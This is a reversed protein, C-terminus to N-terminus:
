RRMLRDTLDYPVYHSLERGLQDSLNAPTTRVREAIDHAAADIQPGYRDYIEEGAWSGLVAGAPVTAWELGPAAAGIAAGIKGGAVGYLARKKDKALGLEVLDGVGGVGRLAGKTLKQAAREAASAPLPLLGRRSIHKELGEAVGGPLATLAGPPAERDQPQRGYAPAMEFLHANTAVARAARPRLVDLPNRPEM